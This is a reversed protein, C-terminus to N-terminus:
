FRDQVYISRGAAPKGAPDSVLKPSSSLRQDPDVADARVSRQNMHARRLFLESLPSHRYPRDPPKPLRTEKYAQLWQEVFACENTVQSQDCLFDEIHKEIEIRSLGPAKPIARGELDYTIAIDQSIRLANRNLM